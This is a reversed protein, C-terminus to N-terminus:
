GTGAGGAAGPVVGALSLLAVGGVVLVAGLLGRAGPREGLVVIALPVTFLPLASALASAVGVPAWKFGATNLGMGVVAGLLTPLGFARWMRREGLSRLRVVLRGRLAFYLAFGASAGLLRLAAGTLPGTGHVGFRVLLNGATWAMVCALAALLGARDTARRELRRSAALTGGVCVLLIGLWQGGALREGYLPWAVLASVAPTAQTLIVTRAVGIHAIAVFYLLDGVCVASFGGLALWGAEGPAPLGGGFRPGLLLAAIVLALAAVANKFWVADSAPAGDRFARAFLVSATGWTLASALAAAEGAGAFPAV